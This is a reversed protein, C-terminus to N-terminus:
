AALKENDYGASKIAASVAGAPASTEVSVTRKALDITVAAAADVGKVAKEVTAACGGCSMKPVKLMLM